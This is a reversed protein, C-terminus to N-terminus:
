KADFLDFNGDSLKKVKIRYWGTLEKVEMTTREELFGHDLLGFGFRQGFDVPAQKLSTVDLGVEFSPFAGRIIGNRRPNWINETGEKHGNTAPVLLATGLGAKVLFRM